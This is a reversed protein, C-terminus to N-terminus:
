IQQNIIKALQKKTLNKGAENLVPIGLEIAKDQVQALTKNNPNYPRIESALPRGRRGASIPEEETQLGVDAVVVLKKRPAATQTSMEVVDRVPPEEIFTQTTMEVKRPAATQTTMGFKRPAATQTTMEVKRPAATQTTMEVKRPAATQTTMEVKRPAATQTAMEVVDRVPPRFTQMPAQTFLNSVLPQVQQAADPFYYSGSPQNSGGAITVSINTVPPKRPVGQRRPQRPQRPQRVKKPQKPQKPKFTLVNTPKKKVPKAM